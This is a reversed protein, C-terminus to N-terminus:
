LKGWHTARTITVVIVPRDQLAMTGYQPYKKLLLALGADHERGTTLVRSTGELLVHGLRSWDETYASVVIAVRPNQLLNRVRRLREPPVRKPKRDIITYLTDGAVAFCIPVVHPRASADATALYAIRQQTVFAAAPPPLTPLSRSGMRRSKDSM